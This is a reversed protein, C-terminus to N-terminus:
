KATRIPTIINLFIYKRLKSIGLHRDNDRSLLGLGSIFLFSCSSLVSARANRSLQPDAPLRCSSDININEGDNWRRADAVSYYKHEILTIRRLSLSKNLARRHVAHSPHTRHLILTVNAYSRLRAVVDLYHVELCASARLYDRFPYSM